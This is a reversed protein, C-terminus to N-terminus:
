IADPIIHKPHTFHSHPPFGNYIKFSAQRAEPITKRSYDRIKDLLIRLLKADGWQAFTQGQTNDFDKFSFVMKKPPIKEPLETKGKLPSNDPLATKGRLNNTYSRKVKM